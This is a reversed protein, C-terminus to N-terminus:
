GEEGLGEGERGRGKRRKKSRWSITELGLGCFTLKRRMRKRRRRELWHRWSELISSIWSLVGTVSVKVFLVLLPSLPPPSFSFFPFKGPFFNTYFFPL